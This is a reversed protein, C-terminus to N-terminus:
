CIQFYLYSLGIVCKASTFTSQPLKNSRTGEEEFVHNGVQGESVACLWNGTWMEVLKPSADSVGSSTVSYKYCKTNLASWVTRHLLIKQSKFYILKNRWTYIRREDPSCSLFTEIERFQIIVSLKLIRCLSEKLVCGM